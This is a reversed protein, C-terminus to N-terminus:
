FKGGHVAMGLGPLAWSIMRYSVPGKQFQDPCQFIIRLWGILIGDAISLVALNIGANGSM